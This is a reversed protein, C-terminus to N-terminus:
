TYKKVIKFDNLLEARMGGNYLAVAPHYLAIVIVEGYLTKAKFEKGHIKSIVNLDAAIGYNEFIYKMSHRGLTVIAKPKLIEIQQKLFPGYLAIESTSPDRNEPPRDKVLNTIYVKSRDMQISALLEDLFKGSRGCFPRGSKAENEGPAEGVFMINAECNGEGIVPIYNHEKRFQYLPSQTLHLLENSIQTLRDANTM